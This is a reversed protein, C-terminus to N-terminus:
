LICNMQSAINKIICYIAEPNTNMLRVPPLQGAQFCDLAKWINAQACPGSPM